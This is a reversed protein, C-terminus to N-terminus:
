GHGEDILLELLPVAAALVTREDDSLGSLREALWANSVGRYQSIWAKGADSVRVPCVRRDDESPVRELLERKELSRVVRSIMPPSLREREALDKMALPGHRYTAGLVSLETPTLVDASVRLVRSLPIVAARLQAALDAVSSDADTEAM